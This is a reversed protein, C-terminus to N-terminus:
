GDILFLNFFFNPSPDGGWHRQSWPWIKIVVSLFQTMVGKGSQTLHSGKEKKGNQM